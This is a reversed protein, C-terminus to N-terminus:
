FKLNIGVKFFRPTGPTYHIESIPQAEFQLRSETDFQAERWVQDFINEICITLEIKKWAYALTMDNVFYGTAKVSNFENAPRDVMFRYRLLGGFGNKMRASIGGISTFSPALPIFDEGKMANVVRAKTYNLDIDGFLWSTFQYRASVDVGTRKTRGGPEM